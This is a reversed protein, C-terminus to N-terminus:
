VSHVEGRAPCIFNHKRLELWRVAQSSEYSKLNMQLLNWKENESLVTFYAGKNRLKKLLENIKQTHKDKIYLSFNYLM